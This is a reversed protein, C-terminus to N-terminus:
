AIKWFVNLSVFMVFVISPNTPSLFFIFFTSVLSTDESLPCSSYEIIIYVFLVIVMVSDVYSQVIGATVREGSNLLNSPYSWKPITFLSPRIFIGILVMVKLM